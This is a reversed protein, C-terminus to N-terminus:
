RGRWDDPVVVLLPMVAGAVIRQIEDESAALLDEPPAGCGCTQDLVNLWGGNRADKERVVGCLSFCHTCHAFRTAAAM